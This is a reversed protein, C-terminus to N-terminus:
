LGQIWTLSAFTKTQQQTVSFYALSIMDTLSVGDSALENSVSEQDLSMFDVSTQNSAM